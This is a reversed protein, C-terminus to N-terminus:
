SARKMPGIEWGDYEGDFHHAIAEFYDPPPTPKDRWDALLHRVVLLWAKTELAPQLSVHFDRQRLLTVVEGASERQSFQLYHSMEPPPEHDFAAQRTRFPIRM